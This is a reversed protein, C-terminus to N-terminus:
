SEALGTEVLSGVATGATPELVRVMASSSCSVRLDRERREKVCVCVEFYYTESYQFRTHKRMINNDRQHAPRSFSFKGDERERERCALPM